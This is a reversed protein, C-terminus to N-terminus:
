SEPLNAAEPPLIQLGSDANMPGACPVASVAPYLINNNYLM